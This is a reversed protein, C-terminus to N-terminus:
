VKRLILRSTFDCYITAGSTNNLKVDLAGAGNDVVTFVMTSTDGISLVNEESWEIKSMNSLFVGKLTGGRMASSINDIVYEIFFASYAAPDLRLIRTNAANSITVTEPSWIQPFTATNSNIKGIYLTYDANGNMSTGGPNNYAATGIIINNSGGAITVGNINANSGSTSLSGTIGLSGTIQASGTYPFAAGGGGAITVTVAGSSNTAAVGAGTFNLSTLATTLNSGEDQVTIASGGGANLAYSATLAYSSTGQLSGTFGQTAIVSGTIQVQSGSAFILNSRNANSTGNGLVWAGANSSSINYTGQVHQYEGLAVTNFGEAHSWNGIAKTYNGEAHSYEGAAFTNMGEAHSYDGSAETVEGEAHSGEGTAYTNVGEAHSSTGFASTNWGEAHSAYGSALSSTGQTLSGIVGLSGTILASGTYPFVDTGGIAYSATLSYSSTASNSAYSASLAPNANTFISGTIFSATQATGSFSGTFGQTSTISGSFIAPGINTFTSSGSVTLSGTIIVSGTVDLNVSPTSKGIGVNGSFYGRGVFYGAYGAGTSADGYIAAGGSTLTRGGVGISNAYTVDTSTNNGYIAARAGFSVPGSLSTESHLQSTPSTTNIGVYGNSNVVLRTNQNTGAVDASILSLGANTVGSIGARLIIHGGESNVISIQSTSTSLAGYTTFKSYPTTTGIGVDGAQTLTVKTASNMQFDLSSYTNGVNIKAFGATINPLLRLEPGGYTGAGISLFAGGQKSIEVDQNLNTLSSATAAQTASVAFSATGFLSGTIGNTVNLSGTILVSGSVDLKQTPTTTGIGVNGTSTIRFREVPYVGTGAPNTWIAIHGGGSDGGSIGGAQTAIIQSTTYINNGFQITGLKTGTTTGTTSTNKLDLVAGTSGTNMGISVNPTFGFGAAFSSGTGILLSGTIIASGSVDLNANPTKTGIGVNGGSPQLSLGYIEADNSERQSQISHVGSGYGRFILGYPSPTYSLIKSTISGAGPDGSYISRVIGIVDLSESPVTKGIGVSGSFYTHGSTGGQINLYTGTDNIVAGRFRTINQFYAGGATNVYFYGTGAVTTGGTDGDIYTANSNKPYYRDALVYGNVELKQTPTVTGIGVNSASQFLASISLGSIGTWLPIYNLTGGTVGSSGPAWSASVAFSATGQLSGTISGSVNLSGTIQAAGIYPFASGGTGATTTGDALLYQSGAGPKIFGTTATVSGTVGLSSNPFTVAGEVRLTGPIVVSGSKAGLVERGSFKYSYINTSM